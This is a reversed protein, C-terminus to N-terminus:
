RAAKLVNPARKGYFKNVDAAGTQAKDELSAARLLYKLYLTDDDLLVRRAFGVEEGEAALRALVAELQRRVRAYADAADGGCREALGEVLAAINLQLTITTFMQALPLEEDVGIRADELGDLRAALDPWRARLRGVHIRAADNDKLQLRLGDDGFVLVSNQQNSELAIGYRLWLTLHLELTLALYADFWADLAGGFYRGALAEVVSGGGPADALLGAIPVPTADALAAEPYRRLIFGLFPLGGVHAGNEEDTLLVRGALAPERAVIDGLLTQIRHGDGITSPKITRINKAGLTRITLPLKVHWAPADRLALSRVSLTPTVALWTGPARIAQAALGAEALFADLRHEWVFPHVPVLAHTAALEAPLGVDAFDPWVPPRAAGSACHLSQPVALWNLEFGPGFEPAYCALDAVAFGLKARATPYYPHDLFAALRDHHLLREHWCALAHGSPLAPQAFWRVQEAQAARRHELAADCEDAYDAFRRAAAEPLGEAFAALVAAVDRLPTFGTADERLLPLQAVRWDQMHRAPEVPLWLPAAGFHGVRLWRRGGEGEVLEGRSACERVDERLLTDIVRRCVYDADADVPAGISMGPLRATM